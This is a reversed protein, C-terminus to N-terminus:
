IFIQFKTRMENVPNSTIGLYSLIEVGKVKQGILYTVIWDKNLLWWSRAKINMWM